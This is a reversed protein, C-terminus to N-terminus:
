IVFITSVNIIFLIKLPVFLLIFVVFDIVLKKKKFLVFVSNALVFIM